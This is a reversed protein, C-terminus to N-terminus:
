REISSLRRRIAGFTWATLLRTDPQVGMLTAKLMSVIGALVAEPLLTWADM